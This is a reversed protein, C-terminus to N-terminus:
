FARLTQGLLRTLIQHRLDSASAITKNIHRLKLPGSAQFSPHFPLRGSLSLKGASHFVWRQKNNGGCAKGLGQWAIAFCQARMRAQFYSCARWNKGRLPRDVFSVRERQPHPTQVSSSVPPLRVVTALSSHVPLM